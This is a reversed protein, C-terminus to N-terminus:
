ALELVGGGATGQVCNCDCAPLGKRGGVCAPLGKRGVGSGEDVDRFGVARWSCMGAAVWLRSLRVTVASQLGEKLTQVASIEALRPRDSQSIM